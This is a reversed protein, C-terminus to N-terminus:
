RGFVTRLRLAVVEYPPEAIEEDFHSDILLLRGRAIAATTFVQDPNTALENVLQTRHGNRDIHLTTVVQSFNRVVILHRGRRVLGDANTLDTDGTDIQTATGTALDFRWLKGVNGQAVILVQRNRSVVIGGLNFGEEQTITGTADAWTTVVWEEDDEAVRFIQPANSNTFYAASGNDDLDALVAYTMGDGAGLVMRVDLRGDIAPLQGEFDNAFDEEVGPLHGALFRVRLEPAGTLNLRAYFAPHM